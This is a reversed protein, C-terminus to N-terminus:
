LIIQSRIQSGGQRCGLLFISVGRGAFNNAGVDWVEVCGNFLDQTICSGNRTNVALRGGVSFKQSMENGFAGCHVDKGAAGADLAGGELDVLVQSALGALIRLLGTSM